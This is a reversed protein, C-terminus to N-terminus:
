VFTTENIQFLRKKNQDMLPFFNDRKPQWIKLLRKIDLSKYAIRM